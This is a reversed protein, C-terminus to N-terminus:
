GTTIGSTQTATAPLNVNLETLKKNNTEFYFEVSLNTSPNFPLKSNFILDLDALPIDVILRDDDTSNIKLTYAGRDTFNNILVVINALLLM